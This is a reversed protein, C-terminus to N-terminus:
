EDETGLSTGLDRINIIEINEDQEYEFNLAIAVAKLGIMIDNNSRYSDRGMEITDEKYTSDIYKIYDEGVKHTFKNAITLYNHEGGYDHHIDIKMKEDILSTSVFVDSDIVDIRIYRTDLLEDNFKIKVNKSFETIGMSDDFDMIGKLQSRIKYGEEGYGLNISDFTNDPLLKLVSRGPINRNSGYSEVLYHGRESGPYVIIDDYSSPKNSPIYPVVGVGMEFYGETYWETIENFREGGVYLKVFDLDFKYYDLANHDIISAILARNRNEYDKDSEDYWTARGFSIMEFEKPKAEDILLYDKHRDRINIVKTSEDQNYEFKLGIAIAKLGIMIDNDKFYSNGGMEISDEKFVGGGIYKIYNEGIKHTFTNAITLHDDQYAIDIKMENTIFRVPVFVNNNIIDISIDSTDLLEGKFKIKVSESVETSESTEDFNINTNSPEINTDQINTPLNIEEKSQTQLFKQEGCGYLFIVLTFIIVLYIKKLM